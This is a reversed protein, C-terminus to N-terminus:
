SMSVFFMVAFISVFISSTASFALSTAVLALSLDLGSRALEAVDGGFRASLDFRGGLLALV